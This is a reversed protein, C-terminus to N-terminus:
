DNSSAPIKILMASNESTSMPVNKIIYLVNHTSPRMSEMFVRQAPYAVHLKVFVNNYHRVFNSHNTETSQAMSVM